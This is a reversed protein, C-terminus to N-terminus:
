RVLDDLTRNLELVNVRPNGLIGWQPPEIAQDVLQRVVQQSVGRARAVAAVQLHAAAPSIHPDNGSGSQTLLDSPIQVDTGLGLRNRLSAERQALRSALEPNSHALNSGAMAMPDFASASPRGIFYRPSEVPQGVWRSGIVKGQEVIVSGSAQAPWLQQALQTLGWCYLLGFGGFVVISFRLSSAMVSMIGSHQQTM